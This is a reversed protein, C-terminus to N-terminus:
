RDTGSKRGTSYLTLLVVEPPVGFRLPLWSTGVGSTVYLPWGNLHCLGRLCATPRAIRHGVSGIVPLVIQGGHTHGALALVPRDRPPDVGLLYDGEHIVLILPKGAPAQALAAPIDAGIERSDIGAVVLPGVDVAENRLLRPRVMLAMVRPTWQPNDHNGLTAFAGLPGDLAAFPPLAQELWPRPWDILKGGMYDGALIVLDPKEARAISVTRLLRRTGMDPFGFHTDSLLLVRIRVGPPLGELPVDARVVVPDRTANWLGVGTFVLGALMLVAILRGILRM